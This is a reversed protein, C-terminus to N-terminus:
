IIKQIEKLLGLMQAVLEDSTIFSANGIVLADKGYIDATKYYEWTFHQSRGSAEGRLYLGSSCIAFGKKCTGFVTTDFILYVEEEIPIGLNKQAKQWVKTEKIYPSATVSSDINKYSYCLKKVKELKENLKRYVSFESDCYPCFSKERNLNIELRGGCNPCKLDIEIM